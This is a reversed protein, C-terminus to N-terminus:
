KDDQTESQIRWSKTGLEGRRRLLALICNEVLRSVKTGIFETHHMPEVLITYIGMLNGGCIDTLIQDGIIVASSPKSGLMELARRFGSRRPKIARDISPVNLDVAIKRLRKPYNTNSIICIKMGMQKARSIWERSSEPVDSSKWPLLTNDLDLMLSDFGNSKLVGLDIDALCAAYQHPCFLQLFGAM